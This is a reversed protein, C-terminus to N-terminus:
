RGEKKPKAEKDTINDAKENEGNPVAAGGAGSGSATKVEAAKFLKYCVIVFFPIDLIFPVWYFSKVSYAANGLGGLTMIALVVVICFWLMYKDSKVM